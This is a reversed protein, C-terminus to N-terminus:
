YAAERRRVRRGPRLSPPGKAARDIYRWVSDFRPDGQSFKCMSTHTGGLMLIDEHALGMIASMKDVVVTKLTPYPEQEYFSALAYQPAWGRFDQSIELLEESHTELIPIFKSSRQNSLASVVNAISGLWKASDAGRHPTGFFVIGKTATAIDYLENERATNATSIASKIIIGGLSHGIFVIPRRPDEERHDRVDRLLKEANDVVGYPNENGMIKADYQFTMIRAHPLKGPLLDRLWFTSTTDDGPKEYHTWSNVCHGSLGHVAVIDIQERNATGARPAKVLYLGPSANKAASINDM